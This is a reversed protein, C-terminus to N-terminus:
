RAVAATAERALTEIRGWDGDRIAAEPAMWSGGLCVVNPLALFAAATEAAIGGTPCFRMQPFPGGLAKLYALGGAPVAPFFKMTTYGHELGTMLDSSTAAGALYGLGMEAAADLMQPRTGPSVAFVAGAEQAAELDAVRLCTGAGVVAEPVEAAAARVAEIGAPTRLTIEVTRVGGAALARALPAGSRWDEVTVVAVLRSAEVTPAILAEPGALSTPHRFTM